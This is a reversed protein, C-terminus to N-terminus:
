ESIENLQKLKKKRIEKETYFYNNINSIFIEEFDYFYYENIFIFGNNNENKGYYMKGVIFNDNYAKKCLYKM